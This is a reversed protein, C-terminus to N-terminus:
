SKELSDAVISACDSEGGEGTSRFDEKKLVIKLIMIFGYTGVVLLHRYNNRGRASNLPRIENNSTSPAVYRPKKQLFLHLDLAILLFTILFKSFLVM